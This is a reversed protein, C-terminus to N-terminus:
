IGGAECFEPLMPEQGRAADTLSYTGMTMLPPSYIHLTVLDLDGAQLNSIQHIDHDESATHHGESLDRSFTAKVAGNPAIEFLTETAMGRLVKVGCSSGVHDHIPSRQGNKWCLVLVSYWDSMRVLNRAYTKESFRVHKAVDGADIELAQLERLLDEIPARGTLTNLYDFLENLTRAM